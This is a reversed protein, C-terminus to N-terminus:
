VSIRGSMRALRSRFCDVIDPDFQSGACRVLEAVAEDVSLGRRYPRDAVMADFSDAVAIIRADLPIADGSIGSPYGSGDFFEHHHLIAPLIDNLQEIPELIAVGKEPHLRIPPFESEDLEKPKELLAEMIGIKGIDHLLGALRIREVREEPLGLDGAIAAAVRMVRESHGKTWPSKADIANALSSVTSFFLQRMGEYLAANEMAVVMQSAIKEIAFAEEDMFRGPIRDGLLLAGRPGERSLLPVALLSRVGTAALERGLATKRSIRGMDQLYQVEGTRVARGIIGSGAIVSGQTLRKPLVIGDGHGILVTLKGNRKEVLARLDCRVVGEIREIATAVIRDRSLSSSIAKNIDDLVLIIDVRKAVELAMDLSEDSLRIHGAVLAAQTVLERAAAIEGATLPQARYSRALLLVGTLQRRVVMPVALLRFPRLLKALAPPILESSAPDPILLHRRALLRHLTQDRGPLLPFSRLLPELEDPIGLSQELVLDRTEPDLLYVASWRSKVSRKLMRALSAFVAEVDHLRSLRGISVSLDRGSIKRDNSSKM